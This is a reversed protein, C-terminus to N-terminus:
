LLLLFSPLCRPPPPPSSSSSKSIRDGVFGSGGAARAAGKTRGGDTRGTRPSSQIAKDGRTERERERRGGRGKQNGRYFNRRIGKIERRGGGDTRGASGTDSPIFSGYWEGARERKEKEISTSFLNGWNLCHEFSGNGTHTSGTDFSGGRAAPRSLICPCKTLPRDRIPLRFSASEM